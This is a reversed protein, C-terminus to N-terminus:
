FNPTELNFDKRQENGKSDKWLLRAHIREVLPDPFFNLETNEGPNICEIPFSELDRSSFLRGFKTPDFRVQRAASQGNNSIVFYHRGAMDKIPQLSMQAQNRELQDREERAILLKNLQAQEKEMKSQRVSNWIGLGLAFIAVIFAGVDFSYQM